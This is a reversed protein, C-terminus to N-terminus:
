ENSRPTSTIFFAPGREGAAHPVAASAVGRSPPRWTHSFEVFSQIHISIFVQIKSRPNANAEGLSPTFSLDLTRALDLPPRAQIKSRPHRAARLPRGNLPRTELALHRLPLASDPGRKALASHGEREKGQLRVLASAPACCARWGGGHQARALEPAAAAQLSIAPCQASRSTSRRGARARTM